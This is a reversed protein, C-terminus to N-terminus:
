FISLYLQCVRRDMQLQGFHCMEEGMQHHQQAESSTVVMEM